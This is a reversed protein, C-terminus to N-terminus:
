MYGRWDRGMERLIARVAERERYADNRDRVFRVEKRLAAAYRKVEAEVVGTPGLFRHLSPHLEALGAQAKARLGALERRLRKAFGKVTALPASSLYPGVAQLPDQALIDLLRALDRAAYADTVKQMWVTKAVQRDPDAEKDPHLARALLLYLARIDGALASDDDAPKRDARPPPSKPRANRPRPGPDAAERELAARLADLREQRERDSASRPGDEDGIAKRLAELRQLRERAAEAERAEEEADTLAEQDLLTRREETLDMGFGAELEDALGCLAELLREGDRRPLWKEQYHRGLIRLTERRAQSLRSELPSIEGALRVHVARLSEARGALGSRAAAIEKLLRDLERRLKGAEGPAPDGPVPFPNRATGAPLRSEPDHPM